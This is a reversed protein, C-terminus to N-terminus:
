LGAASKGYKGLRGSTARKWAGSGIGMPCRAEDLRTTSQAHKAAHRPYVTAQVFNRDTLSLNRDGYKM